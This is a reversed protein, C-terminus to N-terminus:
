YLDGFGDGTILIYFYDMLFFVIQLKEYHILKVAKVTLHSM